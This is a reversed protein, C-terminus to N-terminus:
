GKPSLMFAVARFDDYTRLIKGTDLDVLRVRDDELAVLAHKGDPHPAINGELKPERYAVRVLRGSATDRVQLNEGDSVLFQKGGPLFAFGRPCLQSMRFTWRIKGTDTDLLRLTFPDLGKRVVERYQYLLLVHHGDPAFQAACVSERKPAA